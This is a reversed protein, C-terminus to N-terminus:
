ARYPNYHCGELHKDFYSLNDTRHTYTFPRKLDALLAKAVGYRRFSPKVYVYHLVLQRSVQLVGAARDVIDMQQWPEYCAWGLIVSHDDPMVALKVIPERAFIRDLVDHHGAFFDNRSVHRVLHSSSQYSRLWTAYILNKADATGDVVHFLESM